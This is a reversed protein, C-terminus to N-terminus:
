ANQVVWKKFDPTAVNGGCVISAVRRGAFRARNELIAAVGLAASPEVVLGSCEFLLQMGRIISDESVLVVDDAVALLDDLVQPICYRGAVGDAITDPAGPDVPRGARYSLAMAPAKEPQICIVETKPNLKKIAFGVGTAMAGAGLAVLVTDLGGPFNALELGITAAGECTDLNKSDEVLFAGTAESHVLAAQLAEEIQGEVLLVNAGLAKMREIKYPNAMSSATVTVAFGRKRGSYALAQGLNGASACVVSRPIDQSSLRDIVTEIGRGKFCRIPNLTEIKLVANCDLEDSLVPCVYQPTNKFIPDIRATATKIREIDLRM